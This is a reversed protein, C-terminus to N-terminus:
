ENIKLKGKQPRMTTILTGETRWNSFLEVQFDLTTRAHKKLHVAAFLFPHLSKKKM